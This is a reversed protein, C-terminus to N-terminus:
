NSQTFYPSVADQLEEKMAGQIRKKEEKNKILVFTPLSVVKWHRAIDWLKDVDIKIFLVTENAKKALDVVVPYIFRSPGCWDASFYAVVLKNKNEELKNKWEIGDKCVVVYKQESGEDMSARWSRRETM